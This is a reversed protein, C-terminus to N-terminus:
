KALRLSLAGLGVAIVEILPGLWHGTQTAKGVTFALAASTAMIVGWSIKQRMNM